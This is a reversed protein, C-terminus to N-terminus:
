FSEPWDNMLRTSPMESGTWRRVCRPAGPRTGVRTVGVTVGAIRGGANLATLAVGRATRLSRWKTRRPIDELYRGYNTLQALKNSEIYDLAHALAMDGGRHHHGYSEGDTAIHVLRPASNDDPFASLLRKAFTEGNNLLGEFALAQSIPGDYFFLNMVRGSPLPVRYAMGPDIKGGSVDQWEKGDIPRVQRAQSPSLIAFRIDHQAMIDLSELDVATEPLWLGEPKRGFRYEFDKIGWIIQTKKDRSNALPLIMHNYAQALANGHGSFKELSQRDAELIAEYVDTAYKQM